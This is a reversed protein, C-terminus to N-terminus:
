RDENTEWHEEITDSLVNTKRMQDGQEAGELLATNVNMLPHGRAQFSLTDRESPM